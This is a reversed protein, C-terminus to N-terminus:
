LNLQWRVCNGVGSSLAAAWGNGSVLREGLRGRPRALSSRRRMPGAFFIIFPFFVPRAEHGAGVRWGAAGAGQAARRM